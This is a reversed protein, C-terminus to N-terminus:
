DYEDVRYNILAEYLKHPIKDKYKEAQKEIVLEKNLKYMLFAEHPTNFQGLMINKGRCQLQVRYRKHTYNKNKHEYVGIPLTGRKAKTKTCLKNISQPVFVCTEPSYIKNVKFLIDKDLCMQENNIEYYNNNYWEAFVQYNLWEDCVTCNKYVYNRTHINQTNYCRSIMNHWAQYEKTIKGNDVAKYFRQGEVKENYGIGHVM